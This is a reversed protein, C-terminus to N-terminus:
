IHILSLNLAEVIEKGLGKWGFIYEVFIAGALLSAFWGSVATIVPNISNRLGHKFIVEYKSLGKSFATKIYDQSLVELLNSRVLQIIIALPRIGLVFSPLILNKLVIRYNDGFDDLEYLSGTMNLNTYSHLLYGFFWSFLIASFFSPISMGLTSILLLFRDIWNDKFITATIGFFLGGFLNGLFPKGLGTAM